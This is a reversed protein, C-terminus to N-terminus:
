PTIDRKRVNVIVVGGADTVGYLKVVICPPDPNTLSCNLGAATLGNNDEPLPLSAKLPGIVTDRIELDGVKFFHFTDIVKISQRAGTFALTSDNSARFDAHRPHFTAGAGGEDMGESFLGQLRLEDTQTTRASFFYAAELGRAMGLEGTHNLAVGLVREAANNILDEVPEIATFAPVRADWVKVEADGIPAAGEGFIVAGGTGSAALFTTDKWGFKTLDFAGFDGGAHYLFRQEAPIAPAAADIKANYNDLLADGPGLADSLIPTSRDGPVHGILVIGGFGLSDVALIVDDVNGVAWIDDQDTHEAPLFMYAEPEESTLPDDDLDRDVARLTGLEATITPVTSYLIRGTSDQVLFQPRDSFDIPSVNKLIIAGTELLEFSVHFLLKNPTLIRESVVEAPTALTLDVLSINTGGSNAVLLTDGSNDIFLGWPESGVFIPDIFANNAPEPDLELAEVSNTTFNSLYLRERGATTDVVADAIVGGAPLTVTLGHVAQVTTAPQAAGAAVRYTAGGITSTSCTLVSNDLAGFAAPGCNGDTDYGFGYAQFAITDPLVITDPLLPDIRRYIERMDFEFTRRVTGNLPAAFVITSDYTLTDSTNTNLGVLTVALSDLGGPDKSSLVLSFTDTLEVREAYTFTLSSTPPVTDAVATEVVEIAIENRAVTTSGVGRARAVLRVPGATAPLTVNQQTEPPGVTDRRVTACCLQYETSDTTTIYDLWVESLGNRDFAAVDVALPGNVGVTDNNEPALVAVWPGGVNIVVTDEAANGVGDIATAIIHVEETSDNVPPLRFNVTAAQRWPTSYQRTEPGFRTVVSDTAQSSDGRFAYGAVQIIDLGAQDDLLEVEVSLTDFLPIQEGDVPDIIAVQPARIDTLVVEVTDVSFASDRDFAYGMFRLTTTPLGVPDFTTQLTDGTAGDSAQWESALEADNEIDEVIYGISDLGLDDTAYVAVDAITDLGLPSPEVLITVEPATNEGGGGGPGFPSADGCAAMLAVALMASVGLSVARSTKLGKSPGHDDPYRLM